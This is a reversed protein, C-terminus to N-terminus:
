ANLKELKNFLNKASLLFNHAVAYVEDATDEDYTHSTLNRADGYQFWPKPDDILGYKAALRFLEKRTRPYTADEKSVNLSIWRQIMKWCQEYSIEFNQIVGARLTEQLDRNSNNTESYLNATALARDLAIITKNLNTLNLQMANLIALIHTKVIYYSVDIGKM